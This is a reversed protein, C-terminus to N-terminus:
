PCLGGLAGETFGEVYDATLHAEDRPGWREWFGECDGPQDIPMLLHGQLDWAPRITDFFFQTAFADDDMPCEDPQPNCWGHKKYRWRAAYERLNDLEKAEAGETAWREGDSRGMAWTNM